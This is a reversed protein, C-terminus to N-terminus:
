PVSKLDTIYDRKLHVQNGGAKHNLVTKPFM